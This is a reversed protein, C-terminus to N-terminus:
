KTSKDTDDLLQHINYRIYRSDKSGDPAVVKYDDNKDREDYKSKGGALDRVLIDKSDETKGPKFDKKSAPSRKSPAEEKFDGEIKSNFTNRTDKIAEYSITDRTKTENPSVAKVEDTLSPDAAFEMVRQKSRDYLKLAKEDTKSKGNGSTEGIYLRYSTKENQYPNGDIPKEKYQIYRAKPDNVVLEQSWKQIDKSSFKGKAPRLKGSLYAQELEALTPVEPIYAGREVGVDYVLAVGEVTGDPKIGNILARKYGDIKGISERIELLAIAQFDKYRRFCDSLPEASNKCFGGLATRAAPEQASDKTAAEILHIKKLLYVAQITLNESARSYRCSMGCTAETEKKWDKPAAVKSPSPAATSVSQTLVGEDATGRASATLLVILILASVRATRLPKRFFLYM